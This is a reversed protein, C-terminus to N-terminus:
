KITAKNRKSLKLGSLKCNVVENVLDVISVSSFLTFYTLLYRYINVKSM